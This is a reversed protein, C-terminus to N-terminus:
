GPWAATAGTVPNTSELISIDTPLGQNPIYGTQFTRDVFQELMMDGDEPAKAIGAGLTGTIGFNGTITAGPIAGEVPPTRVYWRLSPTSEPNAVVPCDTKDGSTVLKGQSSSILAIFTTSEVGNISQQLLVGGIIDYVAQTASNVIIVYVSEREQNHSYTYCATPGGGDYSGNYNISSGGGGWNLDSWQWESLTNSTAGLDLDQGVTGYFQTGGSSTPPTQVNWYFNNTNYGSITLHATEGTSNVAFTVAPNIYLYFYSKYDGTVVRQALQAGTIQYVENPNSSSAVQMIIYPEEQANSSISGSGGSSKGGGGGSGGGGGGGHRHSNSIFGTGSITYAASAQTVASLFFLGVIAIVVFSISRLQSKGGKTVSLKGLISYSMVLRSFDGWTGEENFWLISRAIVKSILYQLINCLIAYQM